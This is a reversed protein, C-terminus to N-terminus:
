TNAATKTSGTDLRHGSNEGFIADGIKDASDAGAGALEFHHSYVKLTISPNSHGLRAQVETVPAGNAILISAFSHRLSHWGLQRLGARRLTKHLVGHLATADRLPQGSPTAFVLDLENKPSQLKWRRLATALAVPFRLTRTGSKSKPGYFAARQRKGPTWSLSRRVFLRRADIEIDSWRLAAAEGFRLGTTAVLTILTADLGPEATEILNRIEVPNLVEDPRVANEDPTEESAGLEVSATHRAREVLAAPNRALLGRREAFKCIANITTLFVNISSPQLQDEKLQDRFAEIANVDLKDLRIQDLPAIRRRHAQWGAVSNPRYDLKSALWQDAVEGFSPTERAARYQGRGALVRAESEWQRAEARSDFFKRERQPSPGRAIWRVRGHRIVKTAM